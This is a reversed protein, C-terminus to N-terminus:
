GVAVDGCLTSGVIVGDLRTENRVSLSPLQKQPM